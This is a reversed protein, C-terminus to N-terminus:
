RFMGVLLWRWVDNQIMSDDCLDQHKNSLDDLLGMCKDYMRMFEDFMDWLNMMLGGMELVEGRQGWVM